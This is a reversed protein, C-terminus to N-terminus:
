LSLMLLESRRIGMLLINNSNVLEYKEGLM